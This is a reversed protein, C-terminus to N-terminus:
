DITTLQALVSLTDGPSFGFRVEDTLSQSLVSQDSHVEDTLSQSWVSQDSHVEDTLSQSWM